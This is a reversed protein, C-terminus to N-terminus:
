AEYPAMSAVVARGSSTKLGVKVTNCMTMQDVLSWFVWDFCCGFVLSPLLTINEITLVVLKNRFNLSM